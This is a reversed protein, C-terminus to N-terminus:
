ILKKNKNLRLFKYYRNRYTNTTDRELIAKNVTYFCEPVNVFLFLKKLYEFVFRVSEEGKGGYLITTYLIEKEIEGPIIKDKILKNFINNKEFDRMDEYKKLPTSIFTSLSEILLSAEIGLDKLYQEPNIIKNKIETVHKSLNLENYKLNNILEPNQLYLFLDKENEDGIGDMINEFGVTDIIIYLEYESYLNYKPTLNKRLMRTGEILSYGPIQPDNIKFKNKSKLLYHIVHSRSSEKNNDTVKSAKLRPNKLLESFKTKINNKYESGENNDDNENIGSFNDSMKDINNFHEKLKNGLNQHVILTTHKLGTTKLLKENETIENETLLYAETNNLYKMISNIRTVCINNLPSGRYHLVDDFTNTYTNDEDKSNNNKDKEVAVEIGEYLGYFDDEENVLNMLFNKVSTTKGSGSSGYLLVIKIKYNNTESVNYFTNSTNTNMPKDKEILNYNTLDFDKKNLELNIENARELVKTIVDFNVEQSIILNKPDTILDKVINFVIDKTQVNEEIDRATVSNFTAGSKILDDNELVYFMKNKIFTEM